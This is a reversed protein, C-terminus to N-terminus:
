PVDPVTSFTAEYRSYTAARKDYTMTYGPLDRDYFDPKSIRGGNEWSTKCSGVAATADKIAKQVLNAHLQEDTAARLRNYLANEADRKSTKLDHPQTPTNPWCHEVTEQQCYVYPLITQHFDSM